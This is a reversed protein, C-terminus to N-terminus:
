YSNSKEKLEEIQKDLKVGLFVYAMSTFVILHTPFQGLVMNGYSAGLIGFTGCHLASLKGFLEKDKIRFMIIYSGKGVIYFLIFLHLYLGIIGCEAWIMVYWSDTAINALYGYPVFKQARNGAHGVGGGIPRSKLYAGFAMQNRLRTNLSADETDFSSRMRNIQYNSDGIKTFKFFVFALIMFIMGISIVRVNKKLFLYLFFGAAPVAMAGRTGAVAMGYFGSLSVIVWFIKLKFNTSNLALLAGVVGIQAQSAGFQGADTFFSFVRLKGWLMHTVAGGEDLWKQEWPDPGIILQMAGKVSALLSIIAWIYLFTNLNKPKDYIFYVLPIILLMYLAEGRMASFWAGISVAEPNAIEMVIYGFWIVTLYILDDKLITWDIKKYFHQFFYALFIITLLIDMFYGLKIPIYRTIGMLVLNLIYAFTIGISPNIYVKNLFILLFPLAILAFVINIQSQSLLFGFLISMIAFGLIAIPNALRASGTKQEFPNQIENM